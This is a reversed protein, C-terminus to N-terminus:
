LCFVINLIRFPRMGWLSKTFTILKYNMIHFNLKVFQQCMNIKAFSSYLDTIEGIRAQLRCLCFVQLFM